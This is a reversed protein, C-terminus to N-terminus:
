HSSNLRTSKRDTAHALRVQSYPTGELLKVLGPDNKAYGNVRGDMNSQGSGIWVEGVLVDDLTVTNTGSVTLTDPGGAKLADLRVQWKGDKGAEATKTQDRFKVTVKEGAQATGWIPVPMDRQLVMHSSLIPPLKVEGRVSLPVALLVAWGLLVRGM